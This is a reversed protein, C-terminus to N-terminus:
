LFSACNLALAEFCRELWVKSTGELSFCSTSPDGRGNGSCCRLVVLSEERREHHSIVELMALAFMPLRLFRGVDCLASTTLM